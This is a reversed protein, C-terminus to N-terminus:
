LRKKTLALGNTNLIPKWGMEKSMRVIEVIEPHVLPDGGCISMCDSKRLKKFVELESRIEELTKHGPGNANRYCGECILNCKTTPELWSIGNDAYNWPLRYYQLHDLKAAM